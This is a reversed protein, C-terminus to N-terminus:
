QTTILIKKKRTKKNKNKDTVEITGPQKIEEYEDYLMTKIVDYVSFLVSENCKGVILVSGTRFIMFSIEYDIDDESIKYKCQIGPYSCPDYSANIKYKQKLKNFLKDRNILYGCSFNSNILVTEVKNKVYEVPDFESIVNKIYETARNFTEDDQIGPIEIKGTNLVKIHTEKYQNGCLLRVLVVFCNYFASKPKSRYSLIDKKSIGISIKRIDKFRSKDGSQTDIHQIVTEEIYNTDREKELCTNLTDFSEKDLSNFKMQKKIIGEKNEYYQILQIKWFLNFLDLGKNLYCIKTKTSIYIDTPKPIIGCSEIKDTKYGNMELSDEPESNYKDNDTQCFQM